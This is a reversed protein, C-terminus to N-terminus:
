WAARGPLKSAAPYCTRNHASDSLRALPGGTKRRTSSPCLPGQRRHTGKDVRVCAGCLRVGTSPVM